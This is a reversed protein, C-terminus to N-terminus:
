KIREVVLLLKVRIIDLSAFLEVHSILFLNLVDSSLDHRECLFNHSSSFHCLCYNTINAIVQVWLVLQFIVLTCHFSLLRMWVIVDSIWHSNRGVMCSENGFIVISLYLQIGRVLKVPFYSAQIWLLPNGKICNHFPCSVVHFCLFALIRCWHSGIQQHVTTCSSAFTM